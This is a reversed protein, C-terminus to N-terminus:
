WAGIEIDGRRARRGWQAALPFSVVNMLLVLLAFLYEVGFVLPLM